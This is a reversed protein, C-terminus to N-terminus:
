FKYGAGFVFGSAGQYTNGSQDKAEGTFVYQAFVRLLIPFNYGVFAGFHDYNLDLNVPSRVSWEGKRADLGLMLGANQTGIRAGYMQGNFKTKSNAADGQWGGEFNLGVYPEILFSGYAPLALIFLAILKKM